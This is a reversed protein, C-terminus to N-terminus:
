NMQSAAFAPLIGLTAVVLGLGSVVLMVQSFRLAGFRIIFRYETADPMGPEADIPVLEGGKM